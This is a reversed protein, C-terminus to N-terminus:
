LAIGVGASQRIGCPLYPTSESRATMGTCFRRMRTAQGGIASDRGMERLTRSHPLGRGSKGQGGVGTAALEENFSGPVSM